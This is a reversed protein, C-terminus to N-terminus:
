LWFHRYVLKIYRSELQGLKGAEQLSHLPLYNEKHSYYHVTYVPSSNFHAKQPSRWPNVVSWSVNRDRHGQGWGIFSRPVIYEPGFPISSYRKASHHKHRWYAKLSDNDSHKKHGSVLLSVLIGQKRKKGAMQLDQAHKSHALTFM